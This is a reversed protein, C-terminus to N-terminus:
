PTGSLYEMVKREEEMLFERLTEEKPKPRYGVSPARATVDAPGEVQAMLDQLRLDMSTARAMVAALRRAHEEGELPCECRLVRSSRLDECECGAFKSLLHSMGYRIEDDEDYYELKARGDLKEVITAHGPADGVRLYLKKGHVYGFCAFYDRHLPYDGAANFSDVARSWEECVRELLRDSGVGSICIESVWKGAVKMVEEAAVHVLNALDNLVATVSYEGPGQTVMWGVPRGTLGRVKVFPKIDDSEVRVRLGCEGEELCSEAARRAKYALETAGCLESLLEVTRSFMGAKAEPEEEVWGM